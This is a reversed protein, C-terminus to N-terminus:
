NPLSFPIFTNNLLLCSRYFALQAQQVISGPHAKVSVIPVWPTFCVLFLSTNGHIWLLSSSLPFAAVLSFSSDFSQNDFLSFMHKNVQGFHRCLSGACSCHLLEIKRRRETATESGCISTCQGPLTWHICDTDRHSQVFSRTSMYSTHSVCRKM